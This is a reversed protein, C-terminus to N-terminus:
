ATVTLRNSKQHTIYHLGAQDFQLYHLVGTRVKRRQRLHVMKITINLQFLNM